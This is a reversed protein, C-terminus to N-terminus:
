EGKAAMAANRRAEARLRNTKCAAMRSSEKQAEMAEQNLKEAWPQAIRDSVDASRKRPTRRDGPTLPPADYVQLWDGRM